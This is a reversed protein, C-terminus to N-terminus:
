NLDFVSPRFSPDPFTETFLWIASIRPKTFWVTKKEFGSLEAVRTCICSYVAHLCIPYFPTGASSEKVTYSAPQIAQAVTHQGAKIQLFINIATRRIDVMNSSDMYVM